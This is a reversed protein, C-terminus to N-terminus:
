FRCSTGLMQRQRPGVGGSKRATLTHQLLGRFKELFLSWEEDTMDAVKVFSASAPVQESPRRHGAPSDGVSLSKKLSASLNSVSPIKGSAPRVDEENEDEEELKSLPNRGFGFQFPLTPNISSELDDYDIEFQFGDEQLGTKPSLVFTERNTEAAARRAEM